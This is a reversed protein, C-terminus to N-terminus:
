NRFAFLHFSLEIIPVYHLKDFQFLCLVVYKMQDM